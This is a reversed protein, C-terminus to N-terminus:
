AAHLALHGLALNAEISLLPHRGAVAAATCYADGDRSLPGGTTVSAGFGKSRVRTATAAPFAVDVSALGADIRVSADRRLDGSFDLNCGALGSRLHLQEANANALRRVTVAGAGTGIDMSRMEAPNPTTFDVDYRGAGAKLDLATIPLGGLDFTTDGAGAEIFLAFPRARGIELELRPLADASTFSLPKFRQTVTATGGSIMAALPMAGTPDDYTGNVWAPGDGSTLRLRCPGIRLRLTLTATEPYPIAIPAVTTTL